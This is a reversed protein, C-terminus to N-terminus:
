ENNAFIPFFYQFLCFHNESNETLGGEVDAGTASVVKNFVPNEPQLV